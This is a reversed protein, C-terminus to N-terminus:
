CDTPTYFERISITPASRYGFTRRVDDEANKKCDHFLSLCSDNHNMKDIDSGGRLLDPLPSRIEYNAPPYSPCLNLQPHLKSDTVEKGLLWFTRM